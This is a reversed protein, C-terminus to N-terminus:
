WRSCTFGLASGDASQQLQGVQLFPWLDLPLPGSLRVPLSQLRSPLRRRRLLVFLTPWDHFYSLRNVGHMSMVKGARKRTHPARDIRASPDYSLSDMTIVNNSRWRSSAIWLVGCVSRVHSTRESLAWRRMSVVFVVPTLPSHYGECVLWIM